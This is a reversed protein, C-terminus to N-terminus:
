IPMTLLRFGCNFLINFVICHRGNIYVFKDSSAFIKLSSNTVTSHDCKINCAHVSVIRKFPLKNNKLNYVGLVLTTGLKDRTTPDSTKKREKKKQM